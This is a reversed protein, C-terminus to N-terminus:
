LVNEKSVCAGLIMLSLLHTLTALSLPSLLLLAWLSSPDM